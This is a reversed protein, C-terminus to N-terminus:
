QNKNLIYHLIVFYTKSLNKCIPDDGSWAGTTVGNTDECTRTTEGVLVYGPDCSYTATTGVGLLQATTSFEITGNDPATLVSCLIVTHTISLYLSDLQIFQSNNGQCNPMSGTWTGVSDRDPDECTRTTSGLLTYGPDCSYTATSGVSLYNVGSSISVTGNDPPTLAPCYVAETFKNHYFFLLHMTEYFPM